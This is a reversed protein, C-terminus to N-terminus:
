FFFVQLLWKAFLAERITWHYFTQWSISSAHTWDRIWSSGVHWPAVLGMCWLRDLRHELAWSGCSLGCAQSVTGRWVLLWWLSFGMCGLLSCDRSALSSVTPTPVFWRKPLLQRSVMCGSCQRISGWLGGNIDRYFEHYANLSGHPFPIVFNLHMSIHWCLNGSPPWGLSTDILLGVKNIAGIASAKSVASCLLHPTQWWDSFACHSM